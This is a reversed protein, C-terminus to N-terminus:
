FIADELDLCIAHYIAIHEEQILYTENIPVIISVDAVDKIMGGDFGTLAIVNMDKAKAVIAAYVINKSNGSTTIVILTDKKNGLGLVANAYAYYANKDNAFATNLANFSTIDITPLGVELTEKMDKLLINSDKDGNKEKFNQISLLLKNEFESSIYRKKKFSKMLEGTIHASDASSGGNGCILVKNGNMYCSKLIEFCKIMDNKIPLLNQRRKCLEDIYSM